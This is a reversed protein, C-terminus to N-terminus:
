LTSVWSPVRLGRGGWTKELTKLSCEVKILAPDGKLIIQKEGVWFTMTLSPWHAKMTGITDLWKMGLVVNVSGLEVALFDAGIIMENLKLEVRKCLGNGKCRTGNGITFGTAKISYIKIDNIM